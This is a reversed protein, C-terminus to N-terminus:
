LVSYHLSFFIHSSKIYWWFHLSASATMSARHYSSCLCGTSAQVCIGELLSGCGPRPSCGPSGWLPLALLKPATPGRSHGVAPVMRVLVHVDQLLKGEQGWLCPPCPECLLLSVCLPFLLPSLLFWTGRAILLCSAM